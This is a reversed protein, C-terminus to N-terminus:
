GCKSYGCSDCHMCGNENIINGEKCEPCKEGTTEAPIYKSLVRCIASTFSTINDDVKKATKIVYRIDANHRLLMSIYLTTTKEEISLNVAQLDNIKIFESVYSYHMKKHKTIIGKHQGANVPNAPSYCFVEYPKGELLGVLVIFHQGKVKIEYYDTELQKPRKKYGEQKTPVSDTTSLIATRKCGSRFITVGKLGELWAKTYIDKVDEVTATEPLNITSSISADIYRQFVGQMKIRDEPKIDASSIYYEPLEDLKVDDGNFFDKVIKPYVKYTVDKGHLSKTTRNYYLAFIPEIGGSINLLTSLTGTPAITLLQTNALGGKIRILEKTYKNAYLAMDSKIFDDYSLAYCNSASSCLASNYIVSAINEAIELSERSGYPIGLKIFADALGMIGLGIQKYKSVTDRQIQLPHLPLGEFLVENLALVAIAVDNQLSTYNFVGNDVYASLNMSGLM